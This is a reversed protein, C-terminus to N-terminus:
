DEQPPTTQKGQARKLLEAEIAERDFLLRRGAKCCPLRGELAESRLWKQDVGFHRATALVNLLKRNQQHM